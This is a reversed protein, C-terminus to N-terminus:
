EERAFLGLIGEKGCAAAVDLASVRKKNEQRPDVGRVMLEKFIWVGTPESQSDEERSAVAHLLTDGEDNVALVDHSDFIKKLDKEAPQETCYYSDDSGHKALKVYPFLPTNGFRDRANRDCGGEVFREYLSLLKALYNTKDEFQYVRERFEAGDSPSASMISPALLHLPTEGNLGVMLPDAGASLLLTAFKLQAEYHLSLAYYLPALSANNLASAMAGKELLLSATEFLDSQVALHLATFGTSDIAHINAGALILAMSTSHFDHGAERIFHDTLSCASLLPTRSQSDLVELNVGAKIIPGVNGHNCAIEHLVTTKGGQLGQLPDAGRKLLLSMIEERACRREEKTLLLGILGMSFEAELSASLLPTEEKPGRGYRRPTEPRYLTNTDAGADLIAAVVELDESEIAEYIAPARGLTIDTGADLLKQITKHCRRSNLAAILPTAGDEPSIANVNAGYKLSVELTEDRWFGLGRSGSRRGTLSCQLVSNGESDAPELNVGAKCLFELAVANWWQEGAALIHAAAYFHVPEGTSRRSNDDVEQYSKDVNVGLKILLDIMQVNSSERSAAVHLLPPYFMNLDEVHSAVIKMMSILGFYAITHVASLSEPGRATPDFGSKLLADLLATNRLAVATQFLTYADATEVNIKRVIEEASSSRLSYWQHEVANSTDTRTQFSSLIDAVTGNNLFIAVDHPTQGSKDCLAPNAGASLLLRAVDEIMQAEEEQCIAVSVNWNIKHFPTGRTTDMYSYLKALGPPMNRWLPFNEYKRRKRLKGTDIQHESISHLPTLGQLDEANPNAGAELLHYVCESSGSRSAYHLATQGTEDVQDVTCSKDKYLKCLFGLVNSQAAEAAFHLPTRYDYTKAHIDAGAQVLRSTTVASTSAATHLAMVGENDRAHLDIGLDSQLLFDVLEPATTSSAAAKHLATEGHNNIANARGGLSTIVQLTIKLASFHDGLGIADLFPTNGDFDVNNINAGANILHSM